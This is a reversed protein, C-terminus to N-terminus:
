LSKQSYHMHEKSGESAFRCFSPDKASPDYDFTVLIIYPSVGTTEFGTTEFFVFKQCILWVFMYFLGFTSVLPKQFLMNNGM